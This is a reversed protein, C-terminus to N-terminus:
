KDLNLQAHNFKIAMEQVKEVIKRKSKPLREVVTEDYFVKVRLQHEPSRKVLRHRSELHVPHPVDDVLPFKHVCNGDDTNDDAASSPFGFVAIAASSLLVLTTSVALREIGRMM